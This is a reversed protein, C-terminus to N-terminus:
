GPQLLPRIRGKRPFFLGPFLVTKSQLVSFKKESFNSNNTKAPLCFSEKSLVKRKWLFTKLSGYTALEFRAM